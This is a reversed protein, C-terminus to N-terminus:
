ESVDVIRRIEFSELVIEEDSFNSIPVELKCVDDLLKLHIKIFIESKEVTFSHSKDFGFDSWM